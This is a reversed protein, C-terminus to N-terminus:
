MLETSAIAMDDEVMCRHVIDEIGRDAVTLVVGSASSIDTFKQSFNLFIRM